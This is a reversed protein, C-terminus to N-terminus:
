PGALHISPAARITAHPPRRDSEIIDSKKGSYLTKKYIIVACTSVRSRRGYSISEVIFVHFSGFCDPPVPSFSNFCIKLVKIPVGASPRPFARPPASARWGSEERSGQGRFVSAALLVVHFHFLRRAQTPALGFAQGWM